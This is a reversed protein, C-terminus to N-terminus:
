LLPHCVGLICTYIAIGIKYNSEHRLTIQITICTSMIYEELEISQIRVRFAFYSYVDGVRVFVFSFNSSVRQGKM